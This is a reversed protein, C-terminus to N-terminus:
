SPRNGNDNQKISEVWIKYLDELSQKDCQECILGHPTEHWKSRVDVETTSVWEVGCNSCKM